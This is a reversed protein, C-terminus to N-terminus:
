QISGARPAVEALAGRLAALGEEVKAVKALSAKDGGGLEGKALADLADGADGDRWRELRDVRSRDRAAREDLDRLRACKADVAELKQEVKDVKAVLDGAKKVAPADEAYSARATTKWVGMKETLASTAKECRSLGRRLEARDDRLEGVRHELAGYLESRLGDFRERGAATEGSLAARVAHTQQVVASLREDFAERAAEVDADLRKSTQEATRELEATKDDLRRVSERARRRRQRRADGGGPGRGRGDRRGRSGPAGAKRLPPPGRRTGLDRTRRSSEAAEARLEDRLSAGLKAELRAEAKAVATAVAAEVAFQRRLAELEGEVRAQVPSIAASAAAAARQKAADLVGALEARSPAAVDRVAVDAEAGRGAAVELAADVRSRWQEADAQWAMMKSSAGKRSQSERRLAEVASDRASQVAHTTSARLQAVEEELTADDLAGAAGRRPTAALAGELRRGSPPAPEEFSDRAWSSAGRSPAGGLRREPRASRQPSYRSSLASLNANTREIIGSLQAEWQQHSLSSSM